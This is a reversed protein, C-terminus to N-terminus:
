RFYGPYNGCSCTQWYLFTTSSCCRIVLTTKQLSDVLGRSSYLFEACMRSTSRPFRKGLYIRYYAANRRLCSGLSHLELRCSAVSYRWQQTIFLRCLSLEWPKVISSASQEMLAAIIACNGRKFSYNSSYGLM